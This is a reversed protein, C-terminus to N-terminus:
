IAGSYAWYLVGIMSKVQIGCNSPFTKMGEVVAAMGGSQIVAGPVGDSAESPDNMSEEVLKLLLASSFTCVAQSATLRPIM